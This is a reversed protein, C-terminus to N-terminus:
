QHCSPSLMTISFMYMLITPPTVRTRKRRRAIAPISQTVLHAEICDQLLYQCHSNHHYLQEWQRKEEPHLLTQQDEKNKGLNALIASEYGSQCYNKRLSCHQCFAHKSEILDWYFFSKNGNQGFFILNVFTWENLNVHKSSAQNIKRPSGGVHLLTWFPYVVKHELLM